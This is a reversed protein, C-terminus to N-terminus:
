LLIGEMILVFYVFAHNYILVSNTCTLTV